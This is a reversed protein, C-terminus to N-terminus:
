TLIVKTLLRKPIARWIAIGSLCGKQLSSESLSKRDVFCIRVIKVRKRQGGYLETGHMVRSDVRWSPLDTGSNIESCSRECRDEIREDTGSMGRVRKFTRGGRVGSNRIVQDTRGPRKTQKGSGVTKFAVSVAVSHNMAGNQRDKGDSKRCRQQEDATAIRM